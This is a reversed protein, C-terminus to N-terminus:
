RLCRSPANRWARRRGDASNLADPPPWCALRSRVCPPSSACRRCRPRVEARGRSTTHEGPEPARAAVHTRRGTHLPTPRTPHPRSNDMHRSDTTHSSAGGRPDPHLTCPVHSLALYSSGRLVTSILHQRPLPRVQACPPSTHAHVRPAAPAPYLSCTSPRVASSRAGTSALHPCADRAQCDSLAMAVSTRSRKRRRLSAHPGYSHGGDCHGGDHHGGDHHGGDHHLVGELM